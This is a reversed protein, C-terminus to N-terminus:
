QLSKIITEPTPRDPDGVGLNIVDRGAAIAAKKKKDIEAFLYPPLKWLRESKVFQTTAMAADTRLLLAPTAPRTRGSCRRTRGAIGSRPWRRRLSITTPTFM